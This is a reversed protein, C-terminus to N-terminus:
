FSLIKVACGIGGQLLKWLVVNFIDWFLGAGIVLGLWVINGAFNCFVAGAALTFLYEHGPRHPIFHLSFANCDGNIFLAPWFSYVLRLRCFAMYMGAAAIVVM